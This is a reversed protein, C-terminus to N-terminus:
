FGFNLVSYAEGFAERYPLGFPALSASGAEFVNLRYGLGLNLAQSIDYALYGNVEFYRSADFWTGLLIDGGTSWKDNLDFNLTVGGKLVDYGPSLERTGNNTHRFYAGVAGINMPNGFLRWGPNYWYDYRGEIRTIQQNAGSANQSSFQSRYFLRAVHSRTRYGAQIGLAQVAAPQNGEAVLDSSVAAMQSGEIGVSWKREKPESPGETLDVTTRVQSAIERRKQAQRKKRARDDFDNEIQTLRQDQSELAARDKAATKRELVKSKFKSESQTKAVSSNAASQKAVAGPAKKNGAAIPLSRKPALAGEEVRIVVPKSFESVTGTSSVSRVRFGYRGPRTLPFRPQSEKVLITKARPSQFDADPAAQLIWGATKDKLQSDSFALEAQAAPQDRNVLLRSRRAKIQAKQETTVQVEVNVKAPQSWTTNGHGIRWFNDGVYWKRQVVSDSSASVEAYPQTLDSQRSIQVKSDSLVSTSGMLWQLRVPEDVWEVTKKEKLEKPGTRQYLDMVKAFHIVTQEKATPSPPVEPKPKVAEVEAQQNLGSPPEASAESQTPKQIAAIAASSEVPKPETIQRQIQLLEQTVQDSKQSSNQAASESASSASKRLESITGKPNQVVPLSRRIREKTDSIQESLSDTSLADVVDMQKSEGTRLTKEQTKEGALFSFVSAFGKLVKFTVTRTRNGSNTQTPKLDGMAIVIESEAGSFETMQGSLAIRMSGNLNLRVLGRAVDPILVGDVEDFLVLTDEGLDLGGGSRMQVQASSQRGTYLADGRFIEAGTEALYWDESEGPQLRVDSALSTIDAVIPEAVGLQQRTFSQLGFTDTLLEFGIAMGAILVIALPKNQLASHIRDKFTM